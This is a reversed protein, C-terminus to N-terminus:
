DRKLSEELILRLHEILEEAINQSKLDELISTSKRILTIAEPANTDKLFRIEETHSQFLLSQTQPRERNKAPLRQWTERFRQILKQQETFDETLWMQYLTSILGLEVMTPDEFNKSAILFAQQHSLADVKSEGRKNLANVLERQWIPQRPNGRILSELLKIADDAFRGRAEESISSIEAEAIQGKIKAFQLRWRANAFEIKLLEDLIEHAKLLAIEGDILGTRLSTLALAQASLWELDSPSQQQGKIALRLAKQYEEQAKNVQGEMALVDGLRLHSRILIQSPASRSATLLNIASQYSTIAEDLRYLDRYADARYNLAEAHGEILSPDQSSTFYNVALESYHVADDLQDPSWALYDGLRLWLKAILEEQSPHAEAQKLLEAALSSAKEPSGTEFLISIQNLGTKLRNEIPSDNVRHHEEIKKVTSTLANLRGTKRLESYLDNIMFTVLEDSAERAKRELQASEEAEREKAFAFITLASLAVIVIGAGTLLIAIRRRFAREHRQYLEPFKEEILTAYIKLFGRTKGDGSKRLDGALPENPYRLAPPFCEQDQSSSNPEGEIILALIKDAKGQDQFTLIEQEVWKSRAANPSCLVILYDSRTLAETIAPGLNSSGSLEARDRFVPRLYRDLTRGNSVRKKRFKRPVVYNELRRHFWEATLGDRSSYSIFAWYQEGSTESM